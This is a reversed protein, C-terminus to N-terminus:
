RSLVGRVAEPDLSEGLPTSGTVDVFLVTVTRRTDVPLQEVAPTSSGAAALRTGCEPCFKAGAPAPHGCEHCFVSTLTPPADVASAASARGM